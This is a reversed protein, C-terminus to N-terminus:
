IPPLASHREIFAALEDFNSDQMSRQGSELEHIMDILARNLPMELGAMAAARMLSEMMSTSESGRKRHAIDWRIGSGTKVFKHYAHKRFVEHRPWAYELWFLLGETDEVTSGRYPDPDFFDFAQLRIGLADAVGLSERVLAGAVRRYLPDNLAEGSPRDTLASLIIQSGYVFKSWVTGKINDTLYTPTWYNLDHQLQRLRPTFSGDMEGLWIYNPFGAELHGPNVLAGGYNPDAGITRRSGAVQEVIHLNEGAQMSVFATDTTSYPLLQQVAARTDQSKVSVIVMDLPALDPLRDPTVARVPIRHIGRVGDVYMGGAQIAQVHEVWRDIFTVDCGARTMWTGQLGGIGGAGVITYRM